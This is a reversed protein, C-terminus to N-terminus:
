SRPMWVSMSGVKCAPGRQRGNSRSPCGSSRRQKPTALTELFGGYVAEYLGMDVKSSRVDIEVMGYQRVYSWVRSPAVYTMRPRLYTGKGLNLRVAHADVECRM